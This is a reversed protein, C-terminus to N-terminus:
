QIDDHGYDKLQQNALFQLTKDGKTLVSLLNRKEVMYVEAFKPDFDVISATNSILDALKITQGRASIKSLRVVESAKREARNGPVEVKTLEEVLTAVDHGFVLEITHLSTPTDEVVDHLYAACLANEDNALGGQEACITAVEIPHVVYPIGTYKRTQGKHANLAFQIAREQKNM